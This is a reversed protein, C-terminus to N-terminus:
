VPVGTQAGGATVGGHKHTKLSITDALVDGGNVQVDGDNVVVSPSNIEVKTTANIKLTQTTVEILHGNKLVISDGEATYIAVEGSALAKVRYSSNETAIIVSHASKGGLPLVVCQSGVPPVSTLGYHQALEAAQVQEGSLGDAQLLAVGPATNTATLRARFPRRITNLASKIRRDIDRIM